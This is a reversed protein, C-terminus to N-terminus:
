KDWNSAQLWAQYSTTNDSFKSYYWKLVGNKGCKEVYYPYAQTISKIAAKKSNPNSATKYTTDFPMPIFGNHAYDYFGSSKSKNRIIGSDNVYKWTQGTKTDLRVCFPIRTEETDINGTIDTSFSRQIEGFYLQFRDKNGRNLQTGVIFSASILIALSISLIIKQM